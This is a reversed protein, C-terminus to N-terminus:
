DTRRVVTDPWWSAHTMRGYEVLAHYQVMKQSGAEVAPRETPQRPLDDAAGTIMLDAESV